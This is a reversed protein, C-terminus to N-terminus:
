VNTPLLDLVLLVDLMAAMVPILVLILLIDMLVPLCVDMKISIYHLVLAVSDALSATPPPLLVLKVISMVSWVNIAPSMLMSVMLALLQVHKLVM